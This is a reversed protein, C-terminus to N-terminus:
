IIRVNMWGSPAQLHYSPRWRQYAPIFSPKKIEIDRDSQSQTTKTPLLSATPSESVDSPGPVTAMAPRAECQYLFFYALSGSYQLIRLSSDPCRATKKLLSPWARSSSMSVSHVTAPLWQGMVSYCLGLITFRPRAVGLSFVRDTSSVKENPSISM